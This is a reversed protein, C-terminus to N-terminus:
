HRELVVERRAQEPGTFHLVLQEEKWEMQMVIARDPKVSSLLLPIKWGFVITEPPEFISLEHEASVRVMFKEGANGQEDFSTVRNGVIAITEMKTITVVKGDEIIRVIKWHGQLRRLEAPVFLWQFAFYGAVALFALAALWRWRRRPWWRTDRAPATTASRADNAM